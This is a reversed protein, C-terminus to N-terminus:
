MSKGDLWFALRRADRGYLRRLFVDQRGYRLVLLNHSAPNVRCLSTDSETPQEMEYSVNVLREMGYLQERPLIRM